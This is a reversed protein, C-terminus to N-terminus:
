FNENMEMRDLFTNEDWVIGHDFFVDKCPTMCDAWAWLSNEITEDLDVVLNRHEESTLENITKM